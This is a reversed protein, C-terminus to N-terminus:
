LNIIEMEGGYWPWVGVASATPGLQRWPRVHTYRGKEQFFVRGRGKGEPVLFDWRYREGLLQRGTDKISM